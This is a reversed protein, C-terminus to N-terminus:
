SVPYETIGVFLNITFPTSVSNEECRGTFSLWGFFQVFQPLQWIKNWDFQLGISIKQGTADLIGPISSIDVLTLAGNNPSPSTIEVTDIYIKTGHPAFSKINILPIQIWDGHIDICMYGILAGTSDRRTEIGSNCRSYESWCPVCGNLESTTSLGLYPASDVGLVHHKKPTSTALLKRTGPCPIHIVHPEGNPGQLTYECIENSQTYSYVRYSYNVEGRVPMNRLELGGLDPTDLYFTAKNNDLLNGVADDMRIEDQDNIVLYVDLYDPKQKSKYLNM